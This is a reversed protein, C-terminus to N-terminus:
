EDQLRQHSDVLDNVAVAAVQHRFNEFRQRAMNIVEEAADADGVRGMLDAHSRIAVAAAESTADQLSRVAQRYSNLTEMRRRRWDTVQASALFDDSFLGLNESQCTNDAEYSLWSGMLEDRRKRYATPYFRKGRKQCYAVETGIREHVEADLEQRQVDDLDSYDQAEFYKRLLYQRYVPQLESILIGLEYRLGGAVITDRFEAPLEAFRIAKELVRKTFRGDAFEMFEDLDKWRGQELGYSYAEVIAVATQEEPVATHLNEDLQVRIIEDPGPARYIKCVVRADYPNVDPDEDAYGAEIAAMVRNAEIRTMARTRTHGAIVLYHHGDAAPSYDKPEHGAKWVRNVFSVYAAFGDPDVKAVDLHNILDGSEISAAISAERPNGVARAQTLMVLDGLPIEATEHRGYVRPRFEEPLHGYGEVRLQRTTDTRTLVTEAAQQQRWAPPESRWM